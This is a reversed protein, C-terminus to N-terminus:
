RHSHYTILVTADKSYKGYGPTVLKGNITITDVMNLKRSTDRTLDDLPTCIINSFGASEFISRIAQYNKHEYGSISAPVRISSGMLDNDGMYEEICAPILAIVIAMLAPMMGSAIAVDEGRGLGSLFGLVSVLGLLGAVIYSAVTIITNQLTGKQAMKVKIMNIKQDTEAKMRDTEAKYQDTEARKLEAENKINITYENEDYLIIQAGCYSCFATKRDGEITMSAGCEPCKVTIMNIAM